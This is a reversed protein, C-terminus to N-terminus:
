STPNGQKGPVDGGIGKLLQNAAAHDRRNLFDGAAADFEAFKVGDRKAQAHVSAVQGNM